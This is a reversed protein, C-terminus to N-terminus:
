DDPREQSLRSMLIATRQAQRIISRLEITEGEAHSGTGAPGMGALGDTYPAVFSIDAAGRLSPPYPQMAERGLDANILNLKDLLAHNGDTPAM